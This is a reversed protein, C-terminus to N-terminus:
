NNQPREGAIFTFPSAESPLSGLRKRNFVVLDNYLQTTGLGLANFQSPGYVVFHDDKLFSCILSNIEPPADGFVTSKPALYLGHSLKKLLGEEVLQALHRDINSSQSALEARRYVQGPVLYAKLKKLTTTQPM